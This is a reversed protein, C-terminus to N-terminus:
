SSLCSAHPATSNRVVLSPSYEVLYGEGLPEKRNIMEVLNEVALKCREPLHHNISTLTPSLIRSVFIDDIGVVSVDQPVRLGAEALVNYVGPANMDSCMIASFPKGSEILRQTLRYGITFEYIDDENDAEHEDELVMFGEACGKSQLYTRAGNIRRPRTLSIQKIPATLMAINRHGLGYLHAAMLEGCRYGNIGVTQIGCDTPSEGLIVVPLQRGIEKLRVIDRPTYAVIIGSVNKAMLSALKEGECETKRKIDCVILEYGAASVYNEVYAVVNTFFINILNPVILGILGSCGSVNRRKRGVSPKKYGLREATELVRQRTPEAISINSRGSLVVSVTTQSVGAERAVDTTTVWAM